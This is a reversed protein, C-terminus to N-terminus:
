GGELTSLVTLFRRNSLAMVMGSPVVTNSAQRLIAARRTPAMRKVLELERREPIQVSLSMAVLTMASPNFGSWVGTELTMVLFGTKTM